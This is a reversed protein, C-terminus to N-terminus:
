TQAFGIESEASPIEAIVKMADIKSGKPLLFPQGFFVQLRREGRLMAAFDWIDKPDKNAYLGQVRIPQVIIDSYKSMFDLLKRDESMEGDLSVKGEPFVFVTEGSAILRRVEKVGEISKEGIPKCGLLRAAWDKWKKQFWDKTTPFNIPFIRCKLIAPFFATIAFPDNGNTHNAIFIVSCDSNRKMEALRYLNELGKAKPSLFLNNLINAVFTAVWQM